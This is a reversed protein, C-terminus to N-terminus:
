TNITAVQQPERLRIMRGLSSEIEGVTKIGQFYTQWQVMAKNEGASRSESHALIAVRDSEERYGGVRGFVGKGLLDHSADGRTVFIRVLILHSVFM